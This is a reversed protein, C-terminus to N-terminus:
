DASNSEASESQYVRLGFTRALLKIDYKAFAARVEDRSIGGDRNADLTAFMTQVYDRAQTDTPAEEKNASALQNAVTEFHAGLEDRSIEGSGDTDVIDFVLDALDRLLLKDRADPDSSFESNSVLAQIKSKHNSTLSSGGVAFTLYMSVAEFNYFAFLLEDKSISGNSDTDISDFLYSTYDESYGMRDVLHSRLEDPSIVGDGNTDISDFISDVEDLIDISNSNTNTNTNSDTNASAPTSASLVHVPVQFPLKLTPLGSRAVSISTASQRHFSFAFACAGLTNTTVLITWLIAGATALASISISTSENRFM